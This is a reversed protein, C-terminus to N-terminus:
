NLWSSYEDFKTSSTYMDRVCGATGSQTFARFTLGPAGSGTFGTEMYDYDGWYGRLDPCPIQNFDEQRITSLSSSNPLMGSWLEVQNGTPFNSNNHFTFVWFPAGGSFKNGYAIAPAWQQGGFGDTNWISPQSCTITTGTTCKAFHLHHRGATVTAFVIRVEDGNFENKGIALGYQPGLRITRDSLTLDDETTVNASVLVPTTWAATRSTTAPYRTIRLNSGDWLLMYLGNPGSKMRPHSFTSGAMPPDTVRAFSGTGSTAMYVDHAFRFVDNFAAYVRGEPSTELASGDYFTGNPCSTSTRQVCDSSSLTFSTGGNTSRAICAGGIYAGCYSAPLGSPDVDGDIEWSAPFKSTPIALNALYIQSSNARNRTISPDGWLVSWGSPPRVRGSAFTEGGEDDPAVRKFTMMSTSPRIQRSGSNFSLFPADTNANSTIVFEGFVGLSGESQTISTTVSTETGFPNGSAFVLESETKDIVEGGTGDDPGGCAPVAAVLVALAGCNVFWGGAGFTRKM